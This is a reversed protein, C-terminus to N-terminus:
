AAKEKKEKKEKDKIYNNIQNIFNQSGTVVACEGDAYDTKLSGEISFIGEFIDAVSGQQLLCVILYGEANELKTMNNWEEALAMHNFTVGGVEISFAVSQTLVGKM